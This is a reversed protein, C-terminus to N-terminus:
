RSYGPCRLPILEEKGHVHVIKGNQTHTDENKQGIIKQLKLNGNMHNPLNIGLYKFKKACKTICSM